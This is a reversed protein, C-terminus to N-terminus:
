KKYDQIAEIILNVVFLRTNPDPIGIRIGSIPVLMPMFDDSGYDFDDGVCVQTINNARETSEEDSVYKGLIEVIHNRLEISKELEM